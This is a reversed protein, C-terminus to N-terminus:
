REKLKKSAGGINRCGQWIPDSIEPFDRAVPVNLRDSPARLNQRENKPSNASVRLRFRQVESEGAFARARTFNRSCHGKVTFVVSHVAANGEDLDGVTDLYCDSKLCLSDAAEPSIRDSAM